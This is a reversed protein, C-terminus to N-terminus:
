FTIPIMNASDQGTRLLHIICKFPFDVSLDCFIVYCFRRELKELVGYICCWFLLTTARAM